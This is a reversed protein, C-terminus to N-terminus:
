SDPPGGSGIALVLLFVGVALALSPGAVLADIPHRATVRLLMVAVGVGVPVSFLLAYGVVSRSRQRANATEGRDQVSDTETEDRQVGNATTLGDSDDTVDSEGGHVTATTTDPPTQRDTVTHIVPNPHEHATASM